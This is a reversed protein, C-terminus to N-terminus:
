DVEVLWLLCYRCLLYDLFSVCILMLPRQFTKTFKSLELHKIFTVNSLPCCRNYVKLTPVIPHSDPWKSSHLSFVCAHICVCVGCVGCVSCARACVCARVWGRVGACVFVSYYECSTLGSTTFSPASLSVMGGHHRSTLLGWERTVRPWTRAGAWCTKCPPPAARQRSPRVLRRFPPSFEAYISRTLIGEWRYDLIYTATSVLLTWVFTSLFILSDELIQKPFWAKWIFNNEFALVNLFMPSRCSGHKCTLFMVLLGACRYIFQLLDCSPVCSNPHTECLHHEHTDSGRQM